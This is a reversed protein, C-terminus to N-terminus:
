RVGVLRESAEWLQRAAAADRAAPTPQKVKSKVFYKGTVGEVEPSSALYVSTAAGKEPSLFFRSGIALGLRLLGTSDGDRGYGTRVTGPHLSNATVGTGELRRALEATFL